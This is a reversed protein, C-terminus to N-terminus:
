SALSRFYAITRELGDRLDVTPEWGLETQALTIDPRRRTPDDEPLPVTVLPVDAGTLELVMEAVERVTFEAPNGLNIPGPHDSELAAVIGRVQDDVYCFSRTQSGVGHLTIPAGALAQSVFTSVVRGDTPRMRPGYTNFIRVIVTNADRSRRFAMAAAETFRKAEDYCSRPGVPNVNGFYSEHQPHVLPEGYVESTSAVLCRAGQDAALELASLTGISGARLIQIPIRGFDSPSAPSALHAIADFVGLDPWPEAVDAEVFTFASRDQLAAVNAPSGSVFNDIAVVDDGRDLLHEALHSGILGAAGTLLVRM